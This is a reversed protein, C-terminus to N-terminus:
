LGRATGYLAVNILADSAGSDLIATWVKLADVGSIKWKSGAEQEIEGNAGADSVAAIAAINGREPWKEAHYIKGGSLHTFIGYLIDLNQAPSAGDDFKTGTITKESSSVTLQEQNLLVAPLFAM